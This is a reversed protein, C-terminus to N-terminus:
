QGVFTTISDGLAIATAEDNWATVIQLGIPKGDITGVPISLAPNGSVSFPATNATTENVDEADTVAGFDPAVMPTTPLVLADFEQLRNSVSETFESRIEHAVTYLEGNTADDFARNLVLQDHIREGLNDAGPLEEITERWAEPYGTEPGIIRGGSAFLASFEIGTTTIHAAKAAEFEPLSVRDFMISADSISDMVARVVDRVPPRSGRLGEKVLGLRFGEVDRGLGDSAPENPGAGYTTPDNPDPGAIADFVRAVTRVSEALPGIVDFSPALGAFGERSVNTYTPKLGVVGCFAAPIRVSGGTDSGLAADLSGTAVAAASGSSSGGPVCDPVRPNMTPGHGSTEGTTYLAFEDMNTTATVDVGADALRRVVTATRHGTFEVAASGCTMPVGAVAINDKVGLRLSSLPGDKSELDFRYLLSNAKDSARTVDTATVDTASPESPQLATREDNAERVLDAITEEPLRIGFRKAQEKVQEPSIHDHSM